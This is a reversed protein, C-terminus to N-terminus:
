TKREAKTILRSSTGGKKTGVDEKGRGTKRRQGENKKPPTRGGIAPQGWLSYSCIRIKGL